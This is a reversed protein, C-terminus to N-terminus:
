VVYRHEEFERGRWRGVIHNVLTDCIQTGSVMKLSLDEDEAVVAKLLELATETVEPSTTHVIVHNLALPFEPCDSLFRRGASEPAEAVAVLLNLTANFVADNTQTSLVNSAVVGVFGLEGCRETAEKNDNCFNLLFGPLIVPFRQGPDGSKAREGERSRAVALVHELCKSRLLQARGDPCDYCLNGLIRLIQVTTEMEGGLARDGEEVAEAAEM